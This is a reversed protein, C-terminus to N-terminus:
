SFGKVLWLWQIGFQPWRTSINYGKTVRSLYSVLCSLLLFRSVSTCPRFLNDIVSKQNNITFFNLQGADDRACSNEMAVRHIQRAYGGQFDFNVRGV